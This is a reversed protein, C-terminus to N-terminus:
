NRALKLSIEIALSLCSLFDDLTHLVSLFKNSEIVVNIFNNEVWSKIYSENDIQVSENVIKAIKENKCEIFIKCKIKM